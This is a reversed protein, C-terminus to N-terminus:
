VSRPNQSNFTDLIFNLLTKTVEVASETQNPFFSGKGMRFLFIRENSSVEVSSSRSRESTEGGDQENDKCHDLTNTRM